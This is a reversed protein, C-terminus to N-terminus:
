RRPRSSKYREPLPLDPREATWFINVIYWREGNHLLQISNIGRTLPEVDTENRRTAYTSFAHAIHGFRETTRATEIEFFGAEEVMAGVRNAFQDPTEFNHEVDGSENLSSPIFHAQPIFLSRFRDWDRLEGRPGSIVAYLTTIIADISEVDEPQAAPWPEYTDDVQEDFLMQAHAPRVDTLFLVGYLLAGLLVFGRITSM